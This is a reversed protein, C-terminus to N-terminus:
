RARWSYAEYLWSQVEQVLQEAKSIRFHHVHSTPSLTEIRRFRRSDPPRSLVVRANLGRASLLNVAAFITTSQLDIRTKAAALTVPGCSRDLEVLREFLEVSLPPKGKLFADM